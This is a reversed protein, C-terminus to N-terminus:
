MNSQKILNEGKKRTASDIVDWQVDLYSFYM